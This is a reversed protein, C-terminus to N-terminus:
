DIDHCICPAGYEEETEPNYFHPGQKECSECRCTCEMAHKECTDIGIVALNQCGHVKCYEDM